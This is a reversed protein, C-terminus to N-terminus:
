TTNRIGTWFHSLSASFFARKANALCKCGFTDAPFLLYLARMPPTSDVKASPLGNQLHARKTKTGIFLVGLILRVEKLGTQINTQKNSVM